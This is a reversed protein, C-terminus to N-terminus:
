SADFAVVQWRGARRVYVKTFFWDEDQTRGDLRRTRHLRGTVVATEGYLRVAIDSTEYNEFRMRGSRAFTLADARSMPTMGPVTIVVEEAWLRELTPARGRVHAENWVHELRVLEASDAEAQAMVASVQAVFLIAVWAVRQM